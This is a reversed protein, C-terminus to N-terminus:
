RPGSRSRSPRGPASCRTPDCGGRPSPPSCCPGCGRRIAQSLTLIQDSAITEPEILRIAVQSMSRLSQRMEQARRVMAASVFAFFVPGLCTLAALVSQPRALFALDTLQEYGFKAYVYYLCLAVWGLSALTAIVYPGRSPRTQLAQLVEGVSPRDDNAPSATSAARAVASPLPAPPAFPADVTDPRAASEAPAAATQPDYPPRQALIPIQTTSAAVGFIGRESVGPLKPPAAHTLKNMPDAVAAEDGLNLAQEVAALAAAASDQATNKKAM